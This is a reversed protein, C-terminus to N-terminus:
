RTLGAAFGSAWAWALHYGGRRGGVDLAEGAFYLGKKLKSELSKEKIEGTDIGGSTFEAENWGRTDHVKYRREKLRKVLEDVKGGAAEDKLAACFKNPLIGVFLDEPLFGRSRRRALETKLEDAELFPAMDVSVLVDKKKDRRLATSVSESIDIIATGSLGYKTFLLDGSAEEAIKGDIVSKAAAFIKQGQLIHCFCDRVVLPVGSPVPEIIGHGFKKAFVYSSGASGLAPYSRGGCAIILKECAIPEEKKSTVIFGDGTESIKTVEFGLVVPVFLRKLEVTLVKLVSSAQNTIPFIRDDRSYMELGLSHFLDLMGDKDLVSFVSRVLAKANPKYFDASLEENLLNCRGNGSALLKKGLQPLKECIMVTSGKRAASIAAMMGAAGGGIILTSVKKM